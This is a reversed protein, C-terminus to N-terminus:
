IVDSAYGGLFRGCDDCRWLGPCREEETVVPLKRKGEPVGRTVSRTEFDLALGTETEVAVYSMLCRSCHDSLAAKMVDTAHEFVAESYAVEWKFTNFVVREVAENFAEDAEVWEASTPEVARLNSFCRLARLVQAVDDKTHFESGMARMVAYRREALAGVFRPDFTTEVEYLTTM